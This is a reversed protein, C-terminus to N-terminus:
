KYRRTIDYKDCLDDICSQPYVRITIDNHTAEITIGDSEADKQCRNLFEYVTEGPDATLKKRM